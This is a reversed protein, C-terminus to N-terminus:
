GFKLGILLGNARIPCDRTSLEESLESVVRLTRLAHHGRSRAIRLISMAATCLAAFRL